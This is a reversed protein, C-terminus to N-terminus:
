AVVMALLLWLAPILNLFTRFPEKRTKHRFRPQAAKAGFWGGIFALILLTSESVRWEGQIARDKDIRFMLFALGNVFVIAGCGLILGSM